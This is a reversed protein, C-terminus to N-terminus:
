GTMAARPLVMSFGASGISLSGKTAASRPGRPKSVTAEGPLHKLPRKPCDLNM